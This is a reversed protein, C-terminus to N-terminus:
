DLLALKANHSLDLLSIATFFSESDMEQKVGTLTDLQIYDSIVDTVSDPADVFIIGSEIGASSNEDDWGISYICKAKCKCVAGSLEFTIFLEEGKVLERDMLIRAGRRSLSILKAEFDGYPLNVSASEEIKIRIHQRFPNYCLQQFEGYFSELNFPVNLVIEQYDDTLRSLSVKNPMGSSSKGFRGLLLLADDASDVLRCGFESMLQSFFANVGSDDFDLFLRKDRIKTRDNQM